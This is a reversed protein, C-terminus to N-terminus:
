FEGAQHYLLWSLLRGKKDVEFAIKREAYVEFRNGARGVLASSALGYKDKAQIQKLHSGLGFKGVATKRGYNPLTQLFYHVKGRHVFVTKTAIAQQANNYLTDLYVGIGQKMILKIQATASGDKYNAEQANPIRLDIGAIKEHRALVQANEQRKFVEGLQDSSVEKMVLLNYYAIDKAKNPDQSVMAELMAQGAAKQQTYYAVIAKLIQAQRLLPSKQKQALQEVKRLHQNIGSFKFKLAYFSLVNLHTPLYVNDKQLALQFYSLMKSQLEKTVRQEFSKTTNYILHTSLDLVVPYEFMRYADDKMMMQLLNAGANNYIEKSKYERLIYEYCEHAALGKDAMLLYNAAQFVLFFKQLAKSLTKGQSLRYSLFPDTAKGYHQYIKKLLNPYLSLMPYGAVYAYIIGKKDGKLFRSKASIRQFGSPMLPFAQGKAYFYVAQGLVFALAQNRQKGFGACVTLLDPDIIIQHNAQNIQTGTDTAKLVLRPAAKKDNGVEAAQWVKKLIDQAANSLGNAFAGRSALPLLLVIVCCGIIKNTNNM